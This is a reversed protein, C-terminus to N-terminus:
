PSAQRPNAAAVWARGHGVVPQPASPKWYPQQPTRSRRIRRAVVEQLIAAARSPEQLYGSSHVTGEIRRHGNGNPPSRRNRTQTTPFAGM